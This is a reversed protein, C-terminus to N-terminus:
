ASRGYKALGRRMLYKPVGRRMLYKPLGRRMLYKLLGGELYMYILNHKNSGMQMTDETAGRTLHLRTIKGSYAASFPSYYSCEEWKGGRVCPPSILYM